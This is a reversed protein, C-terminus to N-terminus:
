PSAALERYGDYGIRRLVAWAAAIPGGPRTSAVTANVLGYGALRRVRLVAAGAAEGDPAAAGVHGEPLVRVQAPRGVGVDCRAGLLRVARRGSRPRALVAPDVRRLM